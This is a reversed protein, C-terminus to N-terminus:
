ESKACAYNKRRKWQCISNTEDLISFHAFLIGRCAGGGAIKAWVGLISSCDKILGCQSRNVNHHIRSGHPGHGSGHRGRGTVLEGYWGMTAM